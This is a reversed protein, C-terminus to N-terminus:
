GNPYSWPISDWEAGDYRWGGVFHFIGSGAFFKGGCKDCKPFTDMAPEPQQWDEFDDDRQAQGKNITHAVTCIHHGNECTIREGKFAYVSM